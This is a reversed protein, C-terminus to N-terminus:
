KLVIRISDLNGDNPAPNVGLLKALLEYIHINQFPEVVLGSKFAPGRAIFIAGMSKLRNDFGHNGGTVYHPKERFTELSTISWGEDAIALIQPICRHDRYHLRDPIEQKRYVLMNPHATVLKQYINDQQGEAPNIAAVPNWDVVDVDSLDIYDDLFIVREASIEAMGHDSVIIVNVKDLLARTKLGNLLIGIVSDMYQIADIVEQSDPGSDHGTDDLTSFYTTIFSPRQDEPLDLWRLIQHMREENPISGDYPYFYTPLVGKIKTESGPWFYCATEIGQKEATVWIPEGGWWDPDHLAESISLRFYRKTDPNYMNNAVIGHNEPYLGTVISYHNPFTKTPFCPILSKARVGSNILFDLNPTEAKDPYDWRFGDISILVVTQGSNDACGCHFLGLTCIVVLTVICRNTVGGMQASLNNHDLLLLFGARM